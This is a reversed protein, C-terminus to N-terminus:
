PALDGPASFAQAFNFARATPGGTRLSALREAAEELSPRHGVPVWWLVLYAETMPAFWQRRQRLVDGHGSRYAFARLTSVDEWVSLNVLVGEGFLRAPRPDEPEDIMRWVFGPSRDALANVEGLAAVFGSLQPSDLPALLTAINLHALQFAM